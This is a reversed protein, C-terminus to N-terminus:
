TELPPGNPPVIAPPQSTIRFSGGGTVKTTVLVLSLPEPENRWAIRSAFTLAPTSMMLKPMPLPGCVMAGCDGSGMTVSGTVISPVVWGPKAPVGRMSIFPTFAPFKAPTMAPPKSILAPLLTTRPSTILRKWLLPMAKCCFPFLIM